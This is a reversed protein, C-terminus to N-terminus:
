VGWIRLEGRAGDGGKAGGTTGGGGGGPATGDTGSTATATSGAGGSGGFSSAGGASGATGDSDSAGGGGGGYISTGGAGPTAGGGGGGGGGYIAATGATNVAGGAGGGFSAQGTAPSGGAGASGTGSAGAGLWGGGGGGAGDAASAAGGGGGGYATILAGLTSNGGAVGSTEDTTAGASATAITVTETTGLASAALTFSVCAAGGGGGGGKNGPSSDGNAGSGGAGWLLGAFQSYGPPKTFVGNAMFTKYFPALVVSKFNTGNCQILRAEGPYMVFNALGDITEAGNPDLTVDGTGSNRYWVAWTSGLTAAATFTQTFTGSTIDIFTGTDATGLITNSTRESRTVSMAGSPGTAGTDGKDGTRHFKMVIADGNAFPSAASGAVNTVTFNRYGAPSAMSALSFLLWKSADALKQLLLYGKVTSTSDDFTALVNTWDAGDSGALDARITTASTQTANDLRLYGAGPDADTTTTSFTYPIGVASGNTMATIAASVEDFGTTVLDLAANVDAARVTDFKVFRSQTAWDFYSNM